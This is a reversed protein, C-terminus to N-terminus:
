VPPPVGNISPIPPRWVSGIERAIARATHPHDGTVMIVRVRAEWCRRIAERVEPRPPDELGVLGCFILDEELRAHQWEPELPRYALAIVRLGQGAMAEQARLAQKRRTDGFSVPEGDTLIRRCLPLVTEPAGKCLVTPSEPLAHVTTLRMRDADFPIEDVKPFHREPLCHTV